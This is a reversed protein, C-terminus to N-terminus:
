NLMGEWRGEIRLPPECPQKLLICPSSTKLDGDFASLSPYAYANLKTLTRPDNSSGTLAWAHGHGTARAEPKLLIRVCCWFNIWDSIEKATKPM